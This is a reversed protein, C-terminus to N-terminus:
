FGAFNITHNHHESCNTCLLPQAPRLNRGQQEKATNSRGLGDFMFAIILLADTM